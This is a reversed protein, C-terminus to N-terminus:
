EDSDGALFRDLWGGARAPTPAPAPQEAPSEGGREVAIAEPEKGSHGGIVTEVMEPEAGKPERSRSPENTRELSVGRAKLWEAIQRKDEPDNFSGHNYIYLQGETLNPKIQGAKSSFYALRQGTRYRRLPAAEGTFPCPVTGIDPNKVAM